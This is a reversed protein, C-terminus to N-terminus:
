YVTSQGFIVGYCKIPNDAFFFVISAWCYRPVLRLFLVFLSAAGNGGTSVGNAAGFCHRIRRGSRRTWRTTANEKQYRCFDWELQTHLRKKNQCVRTSGAATCLRELGQMPNIKENRAPVFLSDNV